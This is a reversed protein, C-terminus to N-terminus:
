ETSGEKDELSQGGYPACAFDEPTEHCPVFSMGPQPYSAYAQWDQEPQSPAVETFFPKGDDRLTVKGTNQQTDVYEAEIEWKCSQGKVNAEVRLGGSAAGGGLDIRTHQFFQKGKHPGEDTSYFVPANHNLDVVVGSYYEAGQPPYNIVTVATPDECSIIVPTM